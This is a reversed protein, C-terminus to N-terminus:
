RSKLVELIGQNHQAYWHELFKVLFACFPLIHSFSYGILNAAGFPIFFLNMLNSRNSFQSFYPLESDSQNTVPIRAIKLSQLSLILSYFETGKTLYSFKFIIEIIQRIASAYRFILLFINEKRSLKEFNAEREEIIQYKKEIKNYIYPLVSLSILSLIKGRINLKSGDKTVSNGSLFYTNLLNASFVRQLGYFHEGFSADFTAIHHGELLLDFILYLEDFYSFIRDFKHPCNEALNRAIFQIAPRLSQQMGEQSILEFITPRNAQTSAVNLFTAEEAMNISTFLLMITFIYVVVVYIKIYSFFYKM